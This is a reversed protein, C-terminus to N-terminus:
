KIEKWLCWGQAVILQKTTAALKSGMLYKMVNDNGQVGYEPFHTFVGLM